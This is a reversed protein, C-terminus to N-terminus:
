NEDFNPEDFLENNDNENDEQIQKSQNTSEINMKKAQTKSSRIKRSVKSTASLARPNSMKQYATSPRQNSNGVDTNYM